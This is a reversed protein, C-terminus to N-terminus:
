AAAVPSLRQAKGRRPHLVIETVTRTVRKTDTFTRLQLAGAIVVQDGKRFTRVADILADDYVVVPHNDSVQEREGARTRWRRTIVPFLAVPRGDQRYRIEPPAAIEGRLTIRATEM